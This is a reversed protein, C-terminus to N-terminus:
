PQKSFRTSLPSVKFGASLTFLRRIYLLINIIKKQRYKKLIQRGETAARRRYICCYILRIKKGGISKLSSPRANSTEETQISLFIKIKNKQGRYKKPRADSSETQLSLLINIKKKGGISKLISSRADSSETQM